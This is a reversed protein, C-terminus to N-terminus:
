IEEEDFLVEQEDELIATMEKMETIVDTIFTYVTGQYFNEMVEDKELDMVEYVKEQDVVDEDVFEQEYAQDIEDYLDTPHLDVCCDVLCDWVVSPQKELGHDFLAKFYAITEERTIERERTLVLFSEIASARILESVKPNEILKKLLTTDGNAVSALIRGIDEIFMDGVIELSKGNPLSLLDIILPYATKERFQALLYMTYKCLKYDDQDIVDLSDSITQRLVDLLTPIIKDKNNIAELLAKEPYPGEYRKLQDILTKFEM